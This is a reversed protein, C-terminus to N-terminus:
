VGRITEPNRRDVTPDAPKSGVPKSTKDYGGMAQQEALTTPTFDQDLSTDGGKRADVDFIPDYRSPSLV